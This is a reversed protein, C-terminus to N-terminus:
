YYKLRLYRELCGFSCLDAVVAVILAAVVAFNVVEAVVLLLHYNRRLPIIFLIIPYFHDHQHTLPVQEYCEM